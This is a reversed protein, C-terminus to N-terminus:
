GVDDGVVLEGTFPSGGEIIEGDMSITWSVESEYDSGGASITYVGDALCLTASGESGSPLSLSNDGVVLTGADWGDGWSDMMMVSVETEDDACTVTYECPADLDADPNYNDLHQDLHVM